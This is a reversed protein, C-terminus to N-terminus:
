NHVNIWAAGSSRYNGEVDATGNVTVLGVRNFSNTYYLSTNGYGCSNPPVSIHDIRSTGTGTTDKIEAHTSLIEFSTGTNCQNMTHYSKIQINENVRASPAFVQTTTSGTNSATIPVTVWHSESGCKIGPSCTTESHLLKVENFAYATNIALLSVLLLKKM